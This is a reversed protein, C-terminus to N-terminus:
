STKFCPLFVWAQGRRLLYTSPQAFIDVDLYTEIRARPGAPCAGGATYAGVQLSGRCKTPNAMEAQRNGKDGQGVQVASELAARVAVAGTRARANRPVHRAMNQVEAVKVAV